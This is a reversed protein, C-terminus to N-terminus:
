TQLTHFRAYCGGRALLSQHTGLEVLRGGALVAIRDARRITALRHAIALTTRNGLLRELAEQVLAESVSDLAATAEDLILVKPDRILARAIALRQRQGGSLQVGNEGIRTEWRAPLREIFEWANADRAAQQLRAESVDGLGYTVNERVTGGFLATEQSVVAVFRRYSRLDLEQMDVGDLYLNGATPRLLGIALNAVTSKGSGSPGVLAVTEGPRLELSFDRIAPESSGPYAFEVGEFDLRGGVTAIAPKGANPEVDTAELVEAVSRLAEFGKEMAPLVALIQAVAGILADFYGALLVVEGPSVGMRHTYALWAALVLCTAHLLRLTVWATAGFIADARDLAMAADRMGLLREDLAQLEVSELGHARTVPLLRLMEIARASMAEIQLRLARNRDRIPGRLWRTVLLAAPITTLFFLLFWPARWATVGLAVLVTLVAAPVYQFVSMALVQISQVGQIIKSQLVGSQQQRHYSLSLQQLKEALRARLQREMEHTADSILRVHWYQTPINQLVAIALIAGNWWLESLGHGEPAAIIDIINAALVPRLWEPSHKVTYLLLSLALKGWDRRYLALLTQLPKGAQFDIPPLSPSPPSSPPATAVPLVSM